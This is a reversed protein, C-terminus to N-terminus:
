KAAFAQLREEFVTRAPFGMSCAYTNFDLLNKDNRKAKNQIERISEGIIAYTSAYGPGIGQHAPFLQHYINSKSLGTKKNAWEIFDKLSQKGTNIRADGIVRLFRIIRWMWTYFEYEETWTELGGRKEFFRVLEKEEGNM